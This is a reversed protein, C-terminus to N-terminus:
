LDADQGAPSRLYQAEIFEQSFGELLVIDM